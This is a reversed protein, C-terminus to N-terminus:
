EHHSTILERQLAHTFWHASEMPSVVREGGTFTSLEVIDHNSLQQTVVRHDFTRFVAYACPADHHLLAQEALRDDAHLDFPTALWRVTPNLRLHTPRRADGGYPHPVATKDVEVDFLMWEYEILPRGIGLPLRPQMFRVFETALHIFEARAAGFCKYFADIDQCLREAGRHRTFRPFMTAVLEQANARVLEGYPGLDGRRVAQCRREAESAVSPAIHLNM